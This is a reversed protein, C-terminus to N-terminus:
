GVTVDRCGWGWARRGEDSGCGGWRGVEEGGPDAAVESGDRCFFGLCVHM